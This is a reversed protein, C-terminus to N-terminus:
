IKQSLSANEWKCLLYRQNGNLSRALYFMASNWECLEGVMTRSTEGPLM